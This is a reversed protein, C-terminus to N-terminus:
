SVFRFSFVLPFSFLFPLGFFFLFLVCRVAMSDFESSESMMALVDAESVHPVLRENFLVMSQHRVYFHSAVRGLEANKKNKTKRPSPTQTLPVLAFFLSLTTTQEGEEGSCM